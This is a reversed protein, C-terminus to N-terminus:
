IVRVEKEKIWGIRGDALRIKYWGNEEDEIYVKTGEHLTLYVKGNEEPSHRIDIRPTFVIATDGSNEHSYKDNAFYVSVLSLGFFGLSRFLM